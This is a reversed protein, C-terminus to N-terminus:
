HKPKKSPKSNRSIMQMCSKSNNLYKIEKMSMFSRYSWSLKICGELSLPHRIEMSLKVNTKRAIISCICNRLISSTLNRWLNLSKAKPRCISILKEWSNQISLIALLLNTNIKLNKRVSSCPLWNRSPSRWSMMYITSVGWKKKSFGRCISSHWQLICSEWIRMKWYNRENQKSKM